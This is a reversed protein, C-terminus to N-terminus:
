RDEPAVLHPSVRYDPPGSCMCDRWGHAPCTAPARAARPNVTVEEAAPRLLRAVIGALDAPTLADSVRMTVTLKITQM